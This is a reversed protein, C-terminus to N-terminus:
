LGISLEKLKQNPNLGNLARCPNMIPEDRVNTTQSRACDLCELTDRGEDHRAHSSGGVKRSLVNPNLTNVDVVTVFLHLM